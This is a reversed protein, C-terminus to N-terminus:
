GGGDGGGGGDFGGGDFGGGDFGGGGWGGDGISHGGGVDAIPKLVWSMAVASAFYSETYPLYAKGAEWYPVSRGRVLVRRIDPQENAGVRAADQACAPVQRTGHGPRTWMVDTVAPGHQPNFFCPTQREPLPRGAVRAQVCALAFRGSTLMDVVASIQDTSQIRPAARQAAEYADLAAQYDVRTAEDLERGGVETDLRRLQEGFVVADEEALRRVGDLEARETAALARRGRWRAVLVGGGGLAAVILLWEM